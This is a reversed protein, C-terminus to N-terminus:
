EYWGKRIKPLKNNELPCENLESVWANVLRCYRAKGSMFPYNYKKNGGHKCGNKNHKCPYKM